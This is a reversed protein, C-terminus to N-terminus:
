KKMRSPNLAEDDNCKPCPHGRKNQTITWEDAIWGTDYGCHLCKFRIGEGADAVHMRNVPKSRPLEKKAFLM